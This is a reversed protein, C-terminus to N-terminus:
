NNNNDNNGDDRKKMVKFNNLWTLKQQEGLRIRRSRLHEVRLIELDENFFPNSFNISIIIINIGQVRAM